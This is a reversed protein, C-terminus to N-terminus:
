CNIGGGSSERCRRGHRGGHLTWWTRWAAEVGCAFSEVAAASSRRSRAPHASSPLCLAPLAGERPCITTAYALLVRLYVGRPSAALRPDPRHLGSQRQAYDSFLSTSTPERCCLKWQRSWPGPPSPYAAEAPPRHERTTTSLLSGTRERYLDVSAALLGRSRCAYGTLVFTQRVSQPAPCQDPHSVADSERARRAPSLM